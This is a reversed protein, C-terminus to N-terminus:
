KYLEFLKRLCGYICLEATELVDFIMNTQETSGDLIGIHFILLDSDPAAVQGVLKSVCLLHEPWYEVNPFTVEIWCSEFYM